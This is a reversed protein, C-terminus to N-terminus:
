FIATVRAPPPTADSAVVLTTAASAPTIADPTGAAPIAAAPTATYTYYYCVCHTVRASPPTAATVAFSALYPLFLFGKVALMLCFSETRSVFFIM